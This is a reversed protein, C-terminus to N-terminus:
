QEGEKRFAFKLLAVIVIGLITLCVYIISFFLPTYFLELKFGSALAGDYINQILQWMYSLVFVALPIFYSKENLTLYACAGVIPMILFNYFVGSSNSLYIGILAGFVIFIFGTFYFSKKIANIIKKDDVTTDFHTDTNEFAARCSECTKIHEYVLTCSDDSAVKDIVLPILDLCVDCSINTSKNNV